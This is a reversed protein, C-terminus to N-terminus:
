IGVGNDDSSALHEADFMDVTSMAEFIVARSYVDGHPRHKRPPLTM